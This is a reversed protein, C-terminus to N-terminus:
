KNLPSMKIGELRLLFEKKDIGASYGTLRGDSGLVRHCPIIISIPNHGVAQGIAQAARCSLDKALAGYTTTHGYPIRQLLRWVRLQFDTGKLSLSPTFDPVSGAFYVDLWRKASDLAPHSSEEHEAPLGEAFYKQGYFWLGRLGEDDSVLLLKGLPSDYDSTHIM